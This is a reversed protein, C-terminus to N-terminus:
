LGAHSEAIGTEWLSVRFRNNKPSVAFGNETSM